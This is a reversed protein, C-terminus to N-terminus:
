YEKAEDDGTEKRDGTGEGNGLGLAARLEAKAATFEALFQPDQFLAQAIAAASQKGAEIDSPYHVGALVRRDGFLVGRARLAAAREPVMDALLLGMLNGNTAHGSPYAATAPVQGVPRIAPDALPPRKRTWYEQATQMPVHVTAVVRLFLANTRPLKEPTFGAGLVDAFRFVSIVQDAVCAAEDAATRHKQIRLLEDLEKRAEADGPPPALLRTLDVHGAIAYPQAAPAPAEARLAPAPLALALTLLVLCDLM